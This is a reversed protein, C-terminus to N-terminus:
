RIQKLFLSVRFTKMNGIIILELEVRYGSQNFDAAVMLNKIAVRPEFRTISNRIQRQIALTTAGGLPEFLFPRLNAGFDLVMPMETPNCLLINLISEKIADENYRLAVDNYADLTMTKSIDTFSFNQIEAM